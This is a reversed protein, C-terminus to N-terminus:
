QPIFTYTITGTHRDPADFNIDFLSARAARLAERRMEEDGGWVVKASIVEGGQNLVVEVEVQGGTECRYAPIILDRKNRVPNEFKYRVTVGGKYHTDSGKKDASKDDGPEGKGIADVEAMGADHASRNAAMRKAVAEAQENLKDVDTGRDDTVDKNVLADNSQMNRVREWEIEQAKKREIERELREKEELIEELTRTDVYMAEQYSPGGSLQFELVFLTVLFVVAALLLALLGKRHLYAWDGWDQKRGDFPLRLRQRSRRVRQTDSSAGSHGTGRQPNINARKIPEMVTIILCLYSNKIFYEYIQVINHSVKHWFFM